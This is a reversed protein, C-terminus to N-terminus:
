YTVVDVLDPRGCRDDWDLWFPGVGYFGAAVELPVFDVPAGVYVDAEFFSVRGSLGAAQVFQALRAFGEEAM